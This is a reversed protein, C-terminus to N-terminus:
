NHYFTLKIKIKDSKESDRVAIGPIWLIGEGDYIVPTLAREKLPIKKDCFLKKLKKNMGCTLIKDGEKKPRAFLGSIIRDFYIWITTSKKYINQLYIHKQTAKEANELTEALIVGGIEPLQTEGLEIKVNYDSIEVTKVQKSVIINGNEITVATQNPMTLSSHPVAKEALETFATIHVTSADFFNGLTISAVRAKIAQELMSFNKIPISFSDDLSAIFDESVCNIFADDDRILECARSINSVANENIIKLEPIVNNRIRNRSYTVDTNTSDMVYELGKAECYALIDEKSMKLLPRVILGTGFIRKQPIGCLGKLGSGRALNFIVTEANDTANHATVLLPISNDEMVKQFFEYRVARAEEELGRHNAKALAPVDIELLHFPLSYKEALNRCFDRDREADKGRIMHNVHAVALPAGHKECYEVLMDLLARSDAGGSLALLIPTSKPMDSIIHVPTFATDFNM